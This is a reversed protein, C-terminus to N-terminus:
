QYPVFGAWSANVSGSSQCVCLRRGAPIFYRAGSMQNPLGPDSNSRATTLGILTEVDVTASFVGSFSCSVTCDAGAPVTYFWISYPSTTATLARADTLVFPGEAVGCAPGCARSGGAVMRTGDTSATAVSGAVLLM